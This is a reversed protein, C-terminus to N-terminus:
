LKLEETGSYTMPVKIDVGGLGIKIDGMIEYNVERKKFIGGLSPKIDQFVDKLPVAFELPLTFDSNAPMSASLNQDIDSVKKGDVFMELDLGTITAGLSNPNNLVADGKFIAKLGDRISIDTFKVNKIEKFSPEQPSSCSFIFLSAAIFAFLRIHKTM